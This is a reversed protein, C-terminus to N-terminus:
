GEPLAFVVLREDGRTEDTAGASVNVAVYQRGDRGEYTMPVAEVNYDFAVAWLEAGTRTDFARFRRDSTAGIFTLGGATVMPGGVGHSGVRQRGEPLKEDIGLPVEWAIEGSRADVALLRAWPPKFCPLFGRQTGSDDIYPAVFPPGSVRMYEVQDPTDLGYKPNEAMWGTLLGPRDRSNVLVYELEPDYATGGWNVGGGSGPFVLSPPTGDARLRLPTFPGANYYGVEDWRERCAAAHRANTDSATVIGDRDIGVRALPPPKLPFPQTPSYHEGPVDGAPVPREEVGFVPEGTERNLVFMYATKGVQALAPITEGDREVTFLGPAPPLNYDWLEHHINQFHWELGGTEIDVAITTNGFLNDGPRDGGYFNSGPGSVPLYVLGREEDVTLTVAWVNNGIRDRWSENGWTHNGFDTERPMTPFEWLLRGTKADLARPYAYPPEGGGRPQDLHPARHLEGPGYANSGLVLIDRSVVPVGAYPVRLEVEGANGFAPAREGTAADLAIVKWLSTFFIRPGHEGSGPWYTVGRYSVLGETLQHRWIEEGTEPRLAVVRDGAALYMVGDVVIPTVQQFVDTPDPGTVIRDDHHFRYSWAERLSGVNATDIQTLPSYRTGALDRNYTPWDAGAGRGSEQTAVEIRRFELLGREAQIGIHGRLQKISTATTILEGNLRVWLNEGEATIEYTHWEGTPKYARLLAERDFEHEFPPAGYPMLQGLPIDGTATDMCQVQYGNDPWGNEDDNSTPGTRVFIGSPAEPELFRFEMTLVFDGFTDRSRLWGSGGNVKLVGDEVTFPGGNVIEWGDLNRGNFLATAPSGPQALAASGAALVLCGLLVTAIVIRM